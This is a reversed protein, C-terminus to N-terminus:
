KWQRAEEVPVCEISRQEQRYVHVLLKERFKQCEKETAYIGMIQYRETTTLMAVLLWGTLM